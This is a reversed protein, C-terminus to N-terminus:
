LFQWQNFTVAYVGLLLNTVSHAIVCDWINRTRVMLWTIMSFWVCSAALEGPHMAMPVLTGVLVAVLNVTGFPVESWREHIVLRMVFARLFFEEIVPVILALGLFRIALFGYAALPQDAMEVLPNFGSRRGAAGIWELLSAPLLRRELEFHGLGVWIVVGAVGVAVSLWSARWPFQRYAPWVLWLAAISLAIKATYVLPYDRYALPLGLRSTWPDSQKDAPAPQSADPTSDVATAVADDAPSAIPAAAAAAPSPAKPELSTLGMFVALPLVYPLWPWRALLRGRFGGGAPPSLPDSSGGPLQIASNM